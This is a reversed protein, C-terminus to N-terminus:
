FEVGPYRQTLMVELQRGFSFAPEPTGQAASGGLVFIRYANDAKSAPVREVVPARALHPPFFRLAFLENTAYADQGDIKLFMGTPHGYGFLRLGGELLLFFLAPIVTMAVLRFVWKRWGRLKPRRSRSAKGDAGGGSKGEPGGASRSRRSKKTRSSAM